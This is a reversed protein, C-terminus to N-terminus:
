FTGYLFSLGKLGKLFFVFNQTGLNAHPLNQLIKKKHVVHNFSQMSLFM